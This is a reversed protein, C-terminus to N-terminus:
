RFRFEGAKINNYRVDVYDDREHRSQEHMFGVAHLLEHLVTGKKSVCGPNQLNVEQRGGLYRSVM